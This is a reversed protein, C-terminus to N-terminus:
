VIPSIEGPNYACFDVVADFDIQPIVSVMKDVDHRDCIYEHVKEKRIPANGRNVVHLEFEDGRDCLISFVRGVFYSGGIVLVQKAM